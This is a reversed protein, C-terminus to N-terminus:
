EVAYTGFRERFETIMDQLDVMVRQANDETGFQKVRLVAQFLLPFDGTGIAPHKSLWVAQALSPEEPMPNLAALQQVRLIERRESLTKSKDVLPRTPKIGNSETKAQMKIDHEALLIYLVTTLPLHELQKEKRVRELQKVATNNLNMRM